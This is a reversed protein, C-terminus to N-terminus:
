MVVPQQLEQRLAERLGRVEGVEEQPGEREELYSVGWLEGRCACVDM